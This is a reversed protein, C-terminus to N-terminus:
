QNTKMWEALKSILWKFEKLGANIYNGKVPFVASQYDPVTEVVLMNAKPKYVRNYKSNMAGMLLWLYMGMQRYYNYLQFSGNIWIKEGENNYISNGMFYKISKGTTKLDNLTVVDEEDDITFNDIKCKLKIIIDTKDEFTIKAEALIAYENFDRPAELLGDPKLLKLFKINENVGKICNTYTDFMRNSLYIPTKNPDLIENRKAECFPLAQELAKNLRNESLKGKYYDARMSALQIAEEEDMGEQFCDFLEESFLGLKASPKRIDSIYFDDPQLLMQHVASGLEFSPSYKSEFGKLFKDISGGTRPDLLSLKSNSVYDSYKESFYEEDSMRILQISEPILEIQM